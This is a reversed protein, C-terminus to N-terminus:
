QLSLEQDQKLGLEKPDQLRWFDGSPEPDAAM